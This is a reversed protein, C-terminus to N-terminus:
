KDLIKNLKKRKRLLRWSSGISSVNVKTIKVLAEGHVKIQKDHL